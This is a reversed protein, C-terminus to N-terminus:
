RRVTLNDYNPLDLANLSKGLGNQAWALKQVSAPLKVLAATAWPVMRVAARSTPIVSKMTKRAAARSLTVSRGIRQEYARLGAPLDDRAAALEGALVYATVAALTTGGGIAPGPSFGADGVLGVRGRHWTDLTIQNIADFYFDEATALYELLQPVRWGHGRFEAEVIRRQEDRDRHDFRLEAPTRFLFAARAEGTQHVGYTSVLRNVDLNVLMRNGLDFLDPLSYVALYGGLHRRLGEEPGFTLRRVKSHLGDAGIVLDFRRPEAHEFTVDVGAGDDTVATISDGFVYEIDDRTADYLIKTLEGRLIEVHRDSIGASLKAIDVDVPRKGTREITMRTTLTRAEHIQQDLDMRRVVEVGSGFLDVAHGGLGHRLAPTREVVTPEFGFRRLWFALVPGAVSAGSILVKNM